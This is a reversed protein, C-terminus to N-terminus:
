GRLREGAADYFTPSVVTATHTTGGGEIRVTEGMRAFGGRLMGLAVPHKLTPSFASSTVYGESHRTGTTDPATAHGGIPLPPAGAPSAFGVFQLRDARQDEARMLSRKGIFDNGKKLVHSWGVDLANTTGDTDVGIHLYGKETRLVMWADIGVPTLGHGAGVEMLKTWLASTSTAPVNIEYSTEGSYSVRFMRTPLGAITGEAFSMHPFDDLPVTTGTEHVIHRAQPGTITLVGWASTVPAVLVDLDLWECQLWEEMWAAIREAGGSSTCILFHDDGLRTTVGDDIVVGLENLMLGYRVKGRKLTSMTNAYVLDLFRGADPGTVEIKGLPSGEFLGATRRVTRAERQEADHPSEGSRPYYAPRMWGGYDEFVAGASVHDDHAPMHRRPRFLEGRNRAAMAGLPVPTFPYRYRTHGTEQVSRGTLAGLIALANVNSTKGQDVAMGLTTYRKLHEVSRFSERASLAIDTVSVDNQFDVFAKSRGADISWCPMLSAEARENAVVPKADSAPAFGIAMAAAAGATTGSQVAAHTSFAGAAAGVSCENQVSHDPVFAAIDEAYRTTGGSQSFLHTTPNFGGSMALHDCAIWEQGHSTRVQAGSLRNRGRTDIVAGGAISRIGRQSLANALDSAVTERVDVVAAITVGSDALPFATRYASDNNTFVLGRRGALAAFRRAYHRVASALMIGPRDNGPFVLPREIAGTALVVRAARVQWTRYRARTPDAACAMENGLQQVMTLSNHDHYGLVTTRLLLKADHRGAIHEGVRTAWADGNEGDIVIEDYLLAGGLSFDQEALIVRAGAASAADAAALGAPGGGVVLVDCHAYRSEYRDPDVDTAVKGLGAARRIIGEYLHWDPWMFTKYYFGAPLFRAVLNNIGGVDFRSNPFCNVPKAVLGDYLLVETARMSPTSRAGQGLQVLANSEEVGAAIIGRPRHYKFSRGVLTIGNAMLASALTDGAYGTYSRKEWTFSLPRSRDVRGGAAVRATQGGTM